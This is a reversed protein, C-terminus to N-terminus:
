DGVDVGCRDLIWARGASGESGDGPALQQLAAQADSFDGAQTYATTFDLGYGVEVDVAARADADVVSMGDELQLFMRRLNEAAIRVADFDDSNIEGETFMTDIEAVVDCWQDVDTVGVQVDIIDTADLAVHAGDAVQLCLEHHGPALYVVGESGGNGFHVHDADSPVTDGADVCGADAIVHFHGAGDAPTQFAVTAVEHGDAGCSASVAAILAVALVRRRLPKAGTAFMTNVMVM